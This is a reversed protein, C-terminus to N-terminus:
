ADHPLNLTINPLTNEGFKLYCVFGIISYMSVILTMAISLVGCYGRFHDPNAMSNEVPLVKCVVYTVRIIIENYGIKYNKSPRPSLISLPKKKEKIISVTGIGEMAFVITAFFMPIEGLSTFYKVSKLPPIDTLAYYFTVALGFVIFVAGFASIPVM